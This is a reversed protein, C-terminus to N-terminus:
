NSKELRFKTQNTKRLEKEYITGFIEEENLDRIVLVTSKVKKIVFLKESRNPFYGNAFSNKYKSIRIQDGVDLKPDKDNNEIGFKIYTSSKVDVPGMKITSHYINSYKNVTDDLKDRHVNQSASTM